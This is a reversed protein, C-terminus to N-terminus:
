AAPYRRELDKVFRVIVQVGEHHVKPFKRALLTELKEFAKPWLVVGGMILFPTGFPGPFLLGGLGAVVLLVGVEKPLTKIRQVDDSVSPAEHDATSGEGSAVDKPTDSGDM